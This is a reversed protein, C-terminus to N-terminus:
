KLSAILYLNEEMIQKLSMNWLQILSFYIVTDVSKSRIKRLFLVLGCWISSNSKGQLIKMLSPIM